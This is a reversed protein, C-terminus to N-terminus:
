AVKLIDSPTGQVPRWSWHLAAETGNDLEHLLDYYAVRADVPFLAVRSDQAGDRLTTYTLKAPGRRVAPPVAPAADLPADPIKGGFNHFVKNPNVQYDAM